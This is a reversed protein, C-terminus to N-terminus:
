AGPLPSALRWPTCDAPPAHAPHLLAAPLGVEMTWAAIHSDPQADMWEMLKVYFERPLQQIGARTVMFEGCCPTAIQRLSVPCAACRLKLHTTRLDPTSGM